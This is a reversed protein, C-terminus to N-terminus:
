WVPKLHVQFRRGILAVCLSLPSPNKPITALAKCPSCAFGQQQRIRAGALGLGEKQGGPLTGKCKEAGLLASLAPQVVPLSWLKDPNTASPPAATGSSTFSSRVLCMSLILSFHFAPFNPPLPTLASGTSWAKLLCRLAQRRTRHLLLLLFALVLGSSIGRWHCLLWENGKM